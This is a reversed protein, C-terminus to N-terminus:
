WLPDYLKPPSREDIYKRFSKTYLEKYEGYSANRLLDQYKENIKRFGPNFKAAREMSFLGPFCITVAPPTEDPVRGIELGIVTKGSMFQQYIIQVQYFLGCISLIIVFIKFITKASENLYSRIKQLRSRRLQVIKVRNISHM